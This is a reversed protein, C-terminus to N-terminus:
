DGFFEKILDLDLKNFPKEREPHWMIGLIKKEFHCFAEINNGEDTALVETLSSNFNNPIGYNHFTNVMKPFRYKDQSQNIIPHKSNGSHNKILSLKGGLYTNIYQMGRCVGLVPINKNICNNLIENEIKNRIKSLKIAIKNTKNDHYVDNGGTLIVGDIRFKEFYDNVFEKNITPIYLPLYNLKEVFRIWSVNICDEIENYTNIKINQSLAIIKKSM